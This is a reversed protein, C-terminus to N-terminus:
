IDPPPSVLEFHVITLRAEDLLSYKLTNDVTVTNYLSHLEHVYEEQISVNNSAPKEEVPKEPTSEDPLEETTAATICITKAHSGYVIFNIGTLFVMCSCMILAATYKLLNEKLSINNTKKV